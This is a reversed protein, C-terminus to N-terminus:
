VSGTADYPSSLTRILEFFSEATWLYRMPVGDSSLVEWRDGKLPGQLVVRRLTPYTYLYVQTPLRGAAHAAPELRLIDRGGVDIELLPVEPAPDEDKVTLVMGSPACEGEFWGAIQNALDSLATKWEM